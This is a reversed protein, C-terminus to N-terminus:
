RLILIIGKKLVNKEPKREEDKIMVHADVEWNGMYHYTFSPFTTIRLKNQLITSLYHKSLANRKQMKREKKKQKKGPTKGECAAVTWTRYMFLLRLKQGIETFLADHVTWLGVFKM